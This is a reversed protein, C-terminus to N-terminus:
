VFFNRIAKSSQGLYGEMAAFHLPTMDEEDVCRLSAGHQLLLECMEYAGNSAAYHLPTMKTRDKAQLKFTSQM